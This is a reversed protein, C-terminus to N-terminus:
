HEGELYVLFPRLMTHLAIILSYSSYNLLTKTNTENFYNVYLSEWTGDVGAV